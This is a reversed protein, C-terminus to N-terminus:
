EKNNYINSQQYRFCGALLKYNFSRLQPHIKDLSTLGEFNNIINQICLLKYLQTRVFISMLNFLRNKM